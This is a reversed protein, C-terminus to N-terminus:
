RPIPYSQQPQTFVAKPPRCGSNITMSGACELPHTVGDKTVYPCSVYGDGDSDVNVCIAVAGQGQALHTENLYKDAEAQALDHTRGSVNSVASGLIIVLFIGVIFVVLFGVGIKKFTDNTNLRGTPHYNM